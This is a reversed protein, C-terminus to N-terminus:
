QLILSVGAEWSVLWSQQSASRLELMDSCWCKEESRYLSPMDGPNHEGDADITIIIDGEAQRFGTKMAEIRLLM